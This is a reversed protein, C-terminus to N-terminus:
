IQLCKENDDYEYSEPTPDDRAANSPSIPIGSVDKIKRQLFHTM